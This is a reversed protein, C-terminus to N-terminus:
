QLDIVARRNQPERVGDATPVLLGTKGVGVTAIEGGDVGDGVLATKVAAARRESLAQNYRASGVTDTHGTVTVHATGGKKIVDAAAQIVHAAADTIDSKDFDFFVQFERQAEPQVVPAAPAAAQQPVVPTEAPPAPPAAAFHYSLTIGYTRPSDYQVTHLGSLLTGGYTFIAENTLNKGWLTVSYQGDDPAWRISTNVKTYDPQRTVNDPELYYSGVHNLTVNLDFESGELPIVYDGALTFSFHSAYPLQKGTASGTVVTSIAALDSNSIPANPFSTFKADLYEGSGSVTLNEAVHAEFDLDVGDVEAAGGNIIGTNGGEIRQVQINTYDYHFAAANLRLRHDFM